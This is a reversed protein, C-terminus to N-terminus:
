CTSIALHLSDGPARGARRRARFVPDLFGNTLTSVAHGPDDANVVSVVPGGGGEAIQSAQTGILSTSHSIGINITGGGMIESRLQALYNAHTIAKIEAPQAPGQAPVAVALRTTDALTVVQEARSSCLGIVTLTAM